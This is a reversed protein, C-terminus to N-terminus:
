KRGLVLLLSHEFKVVAVHVMDNDNNLEQELETTPLDMASPGSSCNAFLSYDDDVASTM